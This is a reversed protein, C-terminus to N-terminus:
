TPLFLLIGGQKDGEVGDFHECAKVKQGLISETVWDFGIELIGVIPWTNYKNPM